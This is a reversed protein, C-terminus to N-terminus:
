FEFDQYQHHLCKMMTPVVIAAITEHPHNYAVQSSKGIALQMAGILMQGTGVAAQTTAYSFTSTSLMEKHTIQPFVKYFGASINSSGSTILQGPTPIPCKTQPKKSNADITLYNLSLASIFFLATKKM